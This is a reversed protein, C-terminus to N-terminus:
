NDYLAFIQEAKDYPSDKSLIILSTFFKRAPIYKIETTGADNSPLTMTSTM